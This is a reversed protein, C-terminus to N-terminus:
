GGQAKGPSRERLLALRESFQARSRKYYEDVKM